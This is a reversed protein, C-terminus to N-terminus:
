FCNLVRQEHVESEEKLLKKTYDDIDSIRGTPTFFLFDNNYCKKFIIKKKADELKPLIYKERNLMVTEKIGHYKKFYLQCNYILAPVSGIAGKWELDLWSVLVEPKIKGKDFESILYPSYDYKDVQYRHRILVAFIPLIGLTTDSEIRAGIKSEDLYGNQNFIAMIKLKVYDSLNKLSDQFDQNNVNSPLLKYNGQDIENLKEIELVIDKRYTASYSEVLSPYKESFIEWQASERFFKFKYTSFFKLTCGRKVLGECFKLTAGFDKVQMACLSANYLDQAFIYDSKFAEHYVELAEQYKLETIKNEATNILVHYETHTNNNNQAFAQNFICSLFFISLSIKWGQSTFGRRGTARDSSRDVHSTLLEFLNKNTYLM